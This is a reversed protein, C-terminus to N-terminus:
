TIEVWELAIGLRRAAEGVVEVSLGRVPLGPRVFYFPALNRVGAKFPGKPLRHAAWWSTASLTILSLVAATALRPRSRM